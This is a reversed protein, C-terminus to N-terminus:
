DVLYPVWDNEDEESVVIWKIEGDVSLIHLHHIVEEQLESEQEEFSM